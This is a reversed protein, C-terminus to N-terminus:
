VSGLLVLVMSSDEVGLMSVMALWGEMYDCMCVIIILKFFVGGVVSAKCEKRINLIVTNWIAKDTM